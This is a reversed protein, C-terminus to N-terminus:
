SNNNQHRNCIISSTMLCWTGSWLTTTSWWVESPSSASQPGSTGPGAGARSVSCMGCGARRCRRPAGGTSISGPYRGWFRLQARVLYRKEEYLRLRCFFFNKILPMGFRLQCVRQAQLVHQINLNSFSTCLYKMREFIKLSSVRSASALPNM